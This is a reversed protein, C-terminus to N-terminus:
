PKLVKEKELNFVVQFAVFCSKKLFFLEKLLNVCLASYFPPPVVLEFLNTKTKSDLSYGEFCLHHKRCPATPSSKDVPCKDVIPVSQYRDLRYVRKLNKKERELTATDIAKKAM